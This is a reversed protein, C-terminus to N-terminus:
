PRRYVARAKEVASRVSIADVLRTLWRTCASDIAAFLAKTTLGRNPRYVADTARRKDKNTPKRRYAIMPSHEWKGSSYSALTMVSLTSGSCQWASDLLPLHSSSRNVPQCGSPAYGRHIKYLRMDHNTERDIPHMSWLKWSFSSFDHKLLLLSTKM